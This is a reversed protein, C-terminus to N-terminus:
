AGMRPITTVARERAERMGHAWAAAAIAEVTLGRKGLAPDRPLLTTELGDFWRRFKSNKTMGGDVAERAFAKEM